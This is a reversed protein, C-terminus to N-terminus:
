ENRALSIVERLLQSIFGVDIVSNHFEALLDRELIRSINSNDPKYVRIHMLHLYPPSRFLLFKLNTGKQCQQCKEVISCFHPLFKRGVMSM